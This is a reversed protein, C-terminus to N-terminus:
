RRAANPWGRRCFDRNMRRRPLTKENQYKKQKTDVEVLAFSACHGFHMTLKGEALPIAIKM